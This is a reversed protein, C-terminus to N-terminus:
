LVPFSVQHTCLELEVKLKELRLLQDNEHEKIEQLTAAAQILLGKSRGPQSSASGTRKRRPDDMPSRGVVRRERLDVVELFGLLFVVKLYVWFTHAECGSNFKNKPNERLVLVTQSKKKKDKMIIIVPGIQERM